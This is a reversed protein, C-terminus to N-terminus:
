GGLKDIVGSEAGISGTDRQTRTSCSWKRDFGAATVTQV